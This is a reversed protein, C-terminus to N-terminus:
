LPRLGSYCTPHLSPNPRSQRRRVLFPELWVTHNGPRHAKLRIVFSLEVCGFQDFAMVRKYKGVLYRFVPLSERRGCQSMGSLNPVGIIRVIDGVSLRSGM